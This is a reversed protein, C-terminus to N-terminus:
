QETSGSMECPRIWPPSPTRRERKQFIQSNKNHFESESYNLIINEM